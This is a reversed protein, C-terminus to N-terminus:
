STDHSQNSKKGKVTAETFRIFQCLPFNKRGGLSDMRLQSRGLPSKARQVCFWCVCPWGVPLLVVLVTFIFLLVVLRVRITGGGRYCTDRSRLHVTHELGHAMKWMNGCRVPKCRQRMGGGLKDSCSRPMAIEDIVVRVQFPYRVRGLEIGCNAHNKVLVLKM